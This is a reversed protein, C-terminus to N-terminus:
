APEVLAFPVTLVGGPVRLHYRTRGRKVLTGAVGHYKQGPTVIRVRDGPRLVVTPVLPLTPQSLREVAQAYAASMPVQRGRHTWSLLHAADFSPLCARCSSPREPRRHRTVRHGVPCLGVWDGEIAPADASTCREGSCGIRRATARWVADHGHRPGVLAHAIEHLITDRVEAEPHLATLPGSLGIEKRAPRCVGARRKARDFVVTWDRLGHEDLLGRALTAADGVNM